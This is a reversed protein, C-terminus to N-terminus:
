TGHVRGSVALVRANIKSSSLHLKSTKYQIRILLQNYEEEYAMNTKGLMFAITYLPILRIKLKGYIIRVIRKMASMGACIRRLITCTM